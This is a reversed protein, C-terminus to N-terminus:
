EHFVLVPYSATEILEKVLPHGLLPSLFGQNHLTMLLLDAHSEKMYVDISGYIDDSFLQKFHLKLRSNLQGAIYEAESRFYDTPSKSKDKYTKVYDESVHLFTIQPDFLGIFFKLQQFLMKSKESYDLAFVLKELNSYSVGEPVTLVPCKVKKVVHYSNSGFFFKFMDNAGGTGIVVLTEENSHKSISDALSVRGAELEFSCPISFTNTVENKIKELTHTDSRVKEDLLIGGALLSGPYFSEIHLLQLEVGFAECMRAAYAVANNATSSFDTPCIVKRIM